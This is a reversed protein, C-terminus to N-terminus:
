NSGRGAGRSHARPGSGDFHGLVKQLVRHAGGVQAARATPSRSSQHVTLPRGSYLTRGWRRSSWSKFRLSWKTRACFVSLCCDSCVCSCRPAMTQGRLELFRSSGLRDQFQRSFSRLTPHAKWLEDLGLIDRWAQNTIWQKDPDGAREVKPPPCDLRETPVRVRCQGTPGRVRPHPQEASVFVCHAQGQRLPLRKPVAPRYFFRCSSREGVPAPDTDNSEHYPAASFQSHQPGQASNGAGSTGVIGICKPVPRHVM